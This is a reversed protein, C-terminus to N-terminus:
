YAVFGQKVLLMLSTMCLTFNTESVPHHKAKGQFRDRKIKWASIARTQGAPKEDESDIGIAFDGFPFSEKDTAIKVNQEHPSLSATNGILTNDMESTMESSGVTTQEHSPLADITAAVRGQERPVLGVSNDVFVNDKMEESPSADDTSALSDDIDDIDNDFVL